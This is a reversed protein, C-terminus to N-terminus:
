VKRGKLTNQGKHTDTKTVGLTKGKMNVQIVRRAIRKSKM